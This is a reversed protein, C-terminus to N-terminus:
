GGHKEETVWGMVKYKLFNGIKAAADCHAKDRGYTTVHEIGDPGDSVRRAIIVVQDYGYAEAIHKGDPIPIPLAPKSRRATNVYEDAMGQAIKICEDCIWVSPGAVLVVCETQKRACFSCYKDM